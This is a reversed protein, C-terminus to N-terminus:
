RKIGSNLYKTSIKFPGVATFWHLRCEALTGQKARNLIVVVDVALHALSTGARVLADEVLIKKGKQAVLAKAHVITM